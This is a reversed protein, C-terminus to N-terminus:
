AGASSKSKIADSTPSNSKQSGVLSCTEQLYGLVAARMHKRLIERDISRASGAVAMQLLSSSGTVVFMAVTQAEAWSADSCTSLLDAVLTAGKLISEQVLELGGVDSLPEHMARSVDIRKWKASVFADVLGTAIEELRGGALPHCSAKISAFIEALYREVM